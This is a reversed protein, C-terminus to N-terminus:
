FCVETNTLWSFFDNVGEGCGRDQDFCLRHEETDQVDLFSTKHRFSNNM